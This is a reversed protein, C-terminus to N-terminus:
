NGQAEQQRLSANLLDHRAQMEAPWTSKIYSLVAIIDQDSILGDFAPMDTLYDPGSFKKPGFKTLEFLVTDGHHWTHGSQDHPPAPLKGAANRTQWDPQGKLDVGHCSACIETYIQKGLAVTKEHAPRLTLAESGGSRFFVALLVGAIGLIFGSGLLLVRINMRSQELLKM